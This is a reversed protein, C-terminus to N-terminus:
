VVCAHAKVSITGIQWDLKIPAIKEESWVVVVVSLCMYVDGVAYCGGCVRVCVPMNRGGVGWRAVWMAGSM